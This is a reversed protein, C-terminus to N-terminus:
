AWKVSVDEATDEDGYREKWLRAGRRIRHLSFAAVPALLLACFTLLVLCATQVALCVVMVALLSELSPTM